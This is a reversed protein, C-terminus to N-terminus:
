RQKRLKGQVDIVYHCTEKIKELKNQEIGLVKEGFPTIPDRARKRRHELTEQFNTELFVKADTGPITGSWTGELVLIDIKSTDLQRKDDHVHHNTTDMIRLQLESAGAKFDAVLKAIRPFDIENNTGLYDILGKDAQAEFLAVRHADNSRPPRWPYNDCSLVYSPRGDRIFATGLLAAIESKGSGSPGCIAIVSKKGLARLQPYLTAARLTHTPGILPKDGVMDGHVLVEIQSEGSM